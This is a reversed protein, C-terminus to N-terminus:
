SAPHASEDQGGDLEIVPISLEVIFRDGVARFDFTARGSNIMNWLKVLGTGGESSVVRQFQGAAIFSRLENLKEQIGEWPLMENEVLLSFCGEKHAAEVRVFPRYGVGSHRQINEFIIFFIDSFRPLEVIGLSYDVALEVQPNFDPHLKKVQNLGIDIVEDMSYVRDPLVEPVYFWDKLTDLSSHLNTQARRVANILDETEIAAPRIKELSVVLDRVIRELEPKLDDEIATRVRHTSLEVNEWFVALCQDVYRDFANPPQAATALLVAHLDTIAYQFLGRPKELSKIQLRDDAFKKVGQDFRKSFTKLVEDLREANWPELSLRQLWLENAKYEETRADRSTIIREEEFVARIHGSFSGHRARMSLYSDLGYFSNTYAEQVFRTLAEHNLDTLQDAPTKLIADDDMPSNPVDLRGTAALDRTRQYSERLNKEAWKRIPQTNIAFKSREVHFLGQQVIQFRTIDRIETDYHAVNEPDHARLLALVKLREDQLEKSSRFADSDHMVEPICIYRFFYIVRKPDEHEVPLVVESPRECGYRALFDEYADSRIYPRDNGIFRLYMDYVIALALFTTISPALHDSIAGVTRRVPLMRLIQPNDLYASAIRDLAREINMEDLLQNLESRLNDNHVRSAGAANRGLTPTLVIGHLAANNLLSQRAEDPLITLYEPSLASDAVFAGVVDDASDVLLDSASRLMEPQIVRSMSFSAFAGSFRLLELLSEEFKNNDKRIVAVLNDVLYNRSGIAYNQTEPAAPLDAKCIAELPIIHPFDTLKTDEALIMLAEEPHNSDLKQRIRMETHSIGDTLSTEGTLVSLRDLRSDDVAGRLVALTPAIIEPSKSFSQLATLLTEYQDILSANQEWTLLTSWLGTTPLHHLVRYLLYEFLGHEIELRNLVSVFGENISLPNTAFELKQSVHYAVFPTIGRNWVNRISQLYRKQAELGRFIQLAALRTEILFFSKGHDNELSELLNLVQAGDGSLIAQEIALKCTVFESLQQGFLGIREATWLLENEIALPSLTKQTRILEGYTKPFPAGLASVSMRKSFGSFKGLVIRASQVARRNASPLYQLLARYQSVPLRPRLTSLVYHPDGAGALLNKVTRPISGDVM